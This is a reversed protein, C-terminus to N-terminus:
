PAANKYQHAKPLNVGKRTEGSKQANNEDKDGQVDRGWYITLHTSQGIDAVIELSRPRQDVVIKFSQISKEITRVSIIAGTDFFFNM